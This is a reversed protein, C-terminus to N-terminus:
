RISQAEHGIGQIVKLRSKGVAVADLTLKSSAAHGGDVEGLIPLVVARYRDLDKMGIQRRIEAGVTEQALDFNCRSEVM